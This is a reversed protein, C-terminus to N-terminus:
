QSTQLSMSRKWALYGTIALGIYIFYLLAYFHIDKYLYIGTALIDVVLWYYWNDIYKKATLWMGTVSLISTTSDWYPLAAPAMGDIWQPFFILFQAFVLIGLLSAGLAGLSQRLNLRRIPIHPSSVNSKQSWIIWGYINLILFVVHLLFDGYLSAKWFIVFSILVYAIGSPWTYLNEKILFLVALLGFVLGAFELPDITLLYNVIDDVFLLLM